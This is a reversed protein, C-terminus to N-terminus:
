IYSKKKTSITERFLRTIHGHQNYKFCKADKIEENSM